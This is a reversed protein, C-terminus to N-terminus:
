WGVAEGPGQTEEAAHATLAARSGNAWRADWGADRRPRRARSPRADEGKGDPGDDEGDDEPGRPAPEGGPREDGLWERDAAPPPRRDLAPRGARAPAQPPRD